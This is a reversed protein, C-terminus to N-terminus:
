HSDVAVTFQLKVALHDANLHMGVLYIVVSEAQILITLVFKLKVATRGNFTVQCAPDLDVTGIIVFIHFLYDM